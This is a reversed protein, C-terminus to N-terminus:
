FRFMIGMYITRPIQFNGRFAIITAVYRFYSEYTEAQTVIGNGDFDAVANYRRNGYNDYQISAYSNPNAIDADKYYAVNAFDGVQRDFTRGDDIPDGTSSYVGLAQSLNLLNYIDAFFEIESNGAGDGFIDRMRFSKSIRADMLWRSPQRESNREAVANGARDTRTYPTGTRWISTLTLRTNELLKIGGISPGQNNLWFFNVNSKVFHRIDQPMPYESMPFAIKDTYPDLVTGYNSAPNPSTGTVWALTYNVDFSFNNRPRKELGFELGRATGYDSVTYQFYPDPVANVRMVGLQNYIDKYYATTTFAFDDSLQQSYAVEYQNTRQADMNPDGIISAGRLIDVAFNDYMYQLQPMQFFMGYSLRLYSMDTIPYSINVRPSLQVKASAQTFGTDSKISIWSSSPIRADSNPNFYDLRLGASIKIGKYSIQDNVYIGFKTPKFPQNTKQKVIDDDAYLNGGWRGDTYVDFFPNGDYPNGNSHRHLEFLTLVFGSKFTHDFEGTRFVHTYSGDFTWWNGDRFSFSGGGSTAFLNTIGYPNNTGSANSQGEYYGSLPNRQPLDVRLFGDRTFGLESLYTYNDVIKDKGPVLRNNEIKYDDTPQWMEFGSLFGPDKWGVRRSSADNNSANGIRLEYFSTPSITHNILINFGNVYQDLVNQRAIREPVGNTVPSGDKTRLVFTGEATKDYVHGEDNVYMWGWSSFEFSSVGYNGSIQLTIDNALTFRINGRIDRVWSQNDPRQGINNGWPDMIKYTVDRYNEHFYNGTVYFTANKLVDLDNLLPIPGGTGFEFTHQLSGQWKAGEGAEIAKLRTGERVVQLGTPQSGFLAPVDTRWRIFGDYRDNRGRRVVTNVVGSSVDGYEASFGGTIVQIEETAYNSVMPYYGSGSVGFGGTFQNGVDIGDVKIQTESARGGRIIFGGGGQIVGQSMAIVGSLGERAVNQIDDGTLIRKTGEDDARVMRQATVTLTETTVGGKEDRLVVDVTTTKDASIRVVKRVTTKGVFTFRVTYEAADINVIVFSGDNERVVTGKATGELFVTAGRLGNGEEDVVKGRLIGYVSAYSVAPLILLGLFILLFVKRM